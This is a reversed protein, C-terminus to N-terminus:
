CLGPSITTERSRTMFPPVVLASQSVEEKEDKGEKTKCRLFQQLQPIILAQASDGDGNARYIDVVQSPRSFVQVVLLNRLVLLKHLKRVGLTIM